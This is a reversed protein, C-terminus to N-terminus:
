KELLQIRQRAQWEEDPFHGAAADLFHRYYAIAQAKQHLSDYATAWLFYTSTSEPLYRSRMTLAHLTVSPRGTKAATFALGSWGDGNSPDVQTVKNFVDFAQAFKLEQVLNQGHALLLDPDGPAAALLQLYLQDSAAFKGADAMVDALMRTIAPDAPHDDHLQQLLPLAEAKNEAVLVTALQATLVPDGPNQQLAIRLLAEAQPYQKKQILIHALSVNAPKSAPDKALVSRYATEAADIQGTREALSAALLTDDTTEPSLQLAQLLDASALAPNSPSDIRALARWARAMLAPGGDGPDLKTAAVLQPRAEQLKGQRALLLGLSIHALFSSPDAAVARRYFAAADDPHNQADAVYGADFLARPDAPHAALWADLKAEATKWDSAAIAAEAAAMQASLPQEPKAAPQPAKATPQPATPNSSSTQAIALPADFLAAFLLLIFAARSM